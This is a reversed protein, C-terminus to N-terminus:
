RLVFTAITIGAALLAIAVTVALGIQWNSQVRGETAALRRGSSDSGVSVLGLSLENIRRSEAELREALGKALAAHQVDYEQRPLFTKAQDALQGRFENVSEFRREAAVEAKIVAKEAALLAAQVAKDAALFAANLAANQAEFRETYRRDREELFRDIYDDPL